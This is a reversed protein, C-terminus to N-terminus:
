SPWPIRARLRFTGDDDRGHDLRGGSLQVREGLGILGLGAGPVTVVPPWSPTPNAVEITLDAGAHGRVLVDVPVGPAHKRANTLGEQVVRYATRAISGPVESLEALPSAQDLPGTESLECLYHVRAGAATSEAILAPIEALGPQPPAPVVQHGDDPGATATRNSRDDERLVGIVERLEDLAQHATARIMGAAQTM